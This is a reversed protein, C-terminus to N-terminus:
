NKKGFLKNFFDLIAKWIKQFFNLKPAEETAPAETKPEEVEPKEEEPKEEVPPVYNPDSEGCECKGDVFNHEHEPEDAKVSLNFDFERLDGIYDYNIGVWYNGETAITFEFEDLFGYTNYDINWVFAETGSLICDPNAYFVYIVLPAGGKVVYTGPQFKVSFWECQAALLADSVVYHNDGLNFTNKEPVVNGGEEYEGVSVNVNYEGAVTGGYYYNVGVIYMGAKLNVSVFNDTTGKNSVAPDTYAWNETWADTYAFFVFNAGESATFTYKGDAEAIFVIYEIYNAILTDTVVFKNDGVVLGNVHPAVYNPDTEGCECKGDVFNHEHPPVYNPDTEGCECKGDVFNHEHPVEPESAKEAYEVKFWYNNNVMNTLYYTGAASIEFTTIYVGGDAVADTGTTHIVNYSSDLLDVSRGAGGSVWWLTVTGAAPANIQLGRGPGGDVTKWKGGFGFRLTGSFGDDFSKESADVRSDKGHYFTFIDNYKKEEGDAYTGKAFEEWTSFNILKDNTAPTEPAVYNPDVEGCGCVGEVFTHGLAAVEDGTYTDGCACTYTTYGAATCTPATVAASYSHGLAEGQTEGCECKQAETCTANSWSHVHAEVTHGIANTKPNFTITVSSNASAVAIYYNDGNSDGIWSSDIVVKIHYEGAAVGTYSKEFLGTEVNYGLKNNADTGNWISGLFNTGTQYVEDVMMVDGAIIYVPSFACVTCKADADFSHGLAEGQTKGCNNCTEPKDCTAAAWVHTCETTPVEVKVDVTTGSLTITVTSGSETVTFSKDADPYATGWDHDRVVKFKYTGAVVKTYVKTYVGDAFTMDNATNGTDWETGLHAGTGAVTFSAQENCRTCLHSSNYSHGLASAVPDGCDLCVQAETCTAAGSVNAHTCSSGYTSWTGGGKDWTGEAVTYCNSTGNYVLDSTQNWKNNWNNASAGPNMRCFIVNTWSGSPVTCQYLNSQGDVKTMSVWAEGSGFFYAAFRANSENWNASPVLYLVTGAPINAASATLTLTAMSLLMAMVVILAVLLKRTNKM